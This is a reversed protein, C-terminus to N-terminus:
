DSKGHERGLILMMVSIGITLQAFVLIYDPLTSIMEYLKPLLKMSVSIVKTTNHFIMNLGDVLRSIFNIINTFGQVVIDIFNGISDKVMTVANLIGEVIGKILNM